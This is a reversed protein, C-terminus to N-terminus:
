KSSEETPYVFKLASWNEDISCTKTDILGNMMGIERIVDEDLDSVYSSSKKQWSVWFKGNKKIFHKLGTFEVLLEKKSRTFLHILDIPENLIKKFHVKERIGNLSNLFGEPENILKVEFGEEIELKQHLPTDNLHEM